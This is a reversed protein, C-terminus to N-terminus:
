NLCDGGKALVNLLCALIMAREQLTPAELLAQQEEASFPCVVSLTNILMGDSAQEIASWDGPLQWKQLSQRLGSIILGRDISLEKVQEACPLLDHAYDGFDVRGLRFGGPQLVDDLYRFRCVGTLILLIRGDETEQFNSIRGACGVTYLPADDAMNEDDRPQIMGLLRSPTQLAALGMAVYRPEFLQLPLQGLPLLLAQPLPFLPLTQPLDAARTKWPSNQPM